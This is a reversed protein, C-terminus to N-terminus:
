LSVKPTASRKLHPAQDDAVWRNTVRIFAEVLPGEAQSHGCNVPIQIRSQPCISALTEANQVPCLQDNLGHIIDVPVKLKSMAELLRTKNEDRFHHVAFHFWLRSLALTSRPDGNAEDIWDQRLDYTALATDMVYFRRASEIVLAEDDSTVRMHYAKLLGASQLEAAPIFDSYNKFFSNNM